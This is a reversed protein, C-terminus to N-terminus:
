KLYKPLILEKFIILDDYFEEYSKFDDYYSSQYIIDFPIGVLYCILPQTSYIIIYQSHNIYYSYVISNQSKRIEFDKFLKNIKVIFEERTMSM